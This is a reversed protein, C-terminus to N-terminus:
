DRCDEKRNKISAGIAVVPRGRRAVAAVAVVQVEITRSHVHVVAATRVGVRDTAELVSLNRGWPPVQRNVFSIIM